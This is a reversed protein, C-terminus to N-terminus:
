STGPTVLVREGLAMFDVGLQDRMLPEHWTYSGAHELKHFNYDEGRGPVPKLSGIPLKVSLGDYLMDDTIVYSYPIRSTRLKRGQHRYQPRYSQTNEFEDGIPFKGMDLDIGAEFVRPKFM